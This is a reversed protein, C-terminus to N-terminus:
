PKQFTEKLVKEAEEYFKNAQKLCEEATRINDNAMAMLRSAITLADEEPKPNHKKNTSFKM